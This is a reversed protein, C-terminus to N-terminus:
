RKIRARARTRQEREQEQEQEQEEVEVQEQEQEQVHEQEHEPAKGQLLAPANLVIAHRNRHQPNGYKLVNRVTLPM